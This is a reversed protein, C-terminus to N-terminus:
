SGPVLVQQDIPGAEATAILNVMEGKASLGTPDLVRWRRTAGVLIYPSANSEIRIVRGDSTKVVLDRLAEHRDGDNSAVLYTGAAGREVRYQVHAVASQAPEAFVPISMRLAVQVEGPKAASPIQDLLIRYTQEKGEVPRRLVLRVVQATAPAITAIPPSSQVADTATLVDQDGAASQSWAFTRIQITTPTAGQNIVTLAVAMQGPSLQVTVPLVTLAQARAEVGGSLAFLTAALATLRIPSTTM